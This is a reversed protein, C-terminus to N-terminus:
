AKVVDEHVLWQRLAFAVHRTTVLPLTMDPTRGIRVPRATLVDQLKSSLSEEVVANLGEAGWAWRCIGYGTLAFLKTKTDEHCITGFGPPGTDVVYAFVPTTEGNLSGLQKLPGPACKKVGADSPLVPMLEIFDVLASLRNADLGEHMQSPMAKLAENTWTKTMQLNAGNRQLDQFQDRMPMSM